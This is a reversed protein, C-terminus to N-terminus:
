QVLDRYLFTVVQGRTCTRGPAFTTPTMGNTIENETAWLVANYYYESTKLDTFSHSTTSPEPCGAARWLFTVAQARTCAANTAFTTATTGTTIGNEVAWLVAKDYYEGSKVDTFPNRTTTPEPCGMARWLFTVVQARTCAANPTFTTPTTGTTIGESAAWLVPTYFYDEEKIDAFPNAFPEEIVPFKNGHYEAYEQTTSNAYGYIASAEGLTPVRGTINDKGPIVDEIICEPNLVAVKMLNKCSILAECHIEKVSEPIRVEILGSCQFAGYGTTTVSSPIEISPLETCFFFDYDSIQSLNESLKVDALKDCM